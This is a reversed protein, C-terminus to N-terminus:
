SLEGELEKVEGKAWRARIEDTGVRALESAFYLALSRDGTILLPFGKLPGDGKRVIFYHGTLTLGPSGGTMDVLSPIDCEEIDIAPSVPIMGGTKDHVASGEM